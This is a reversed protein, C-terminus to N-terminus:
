PTQSIRDAYANVRRGAEKFRPKVHHQVPWLRFGDQLRLNENGAPDPNRVGSRRLDLLTNVIAYVGANRAALIPNATVIAFKVISLAAPLLLSSSVNEQLDREIASQSTM